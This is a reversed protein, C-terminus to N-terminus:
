SVIDFKNADLFSLVGQLLGLNYHVVSFLNITAQEAKIYNNQM